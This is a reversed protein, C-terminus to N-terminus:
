RRCDYALGPLMQHARGVPVEMVDEGRRITIVDQPGLRSFFVDEWDLRVAMEFGNGTEVVRAPYEELGEMGMLITFRDGPRADGLAPMTFQVTGPAVCQARMLRDDTQPFGYSVNNTGPEQYWVYDVGGQTPEPRQPENQAWRPRGPRRPYGRKPEPMPAPGATPTWALRGGPSCRAIVDALMREGGRADVHTMNFMEGIKIREGNVLAQLLKDNHRPTIHFQWGNGGEMSDGFYSSRRGGIDTWVTVRSMPRSMRTEWPGVISVKGMEDCSVLLARDDTRPVGYGVANNGAHHWRYRQAQAQGAAVLAIGAVAVLIGRIRM